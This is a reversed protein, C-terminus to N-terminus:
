LRVFGVLNGYDNDEDYDYVAGYYDCDDADSCYRGDGPNVIWVNNDLRTYNGREEVPRLIQEGDYLREGDLAFCDTIIRKM